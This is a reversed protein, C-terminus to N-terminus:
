LSGWQQVAIYLAQTDAVGGLNFTLPVLDNGPLARLVGAIGRLAINRSSM